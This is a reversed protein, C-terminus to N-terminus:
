TDGRWVIEVVRIRPVHSVFGLHMANQWNLEHFTIPTRFREEHVADEYKWEKTTWKSASYNSKLSRSSSVHEMKGFVITFTEVKPYKEYALTQWDSGVAM